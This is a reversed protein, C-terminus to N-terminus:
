DEQAQSPLICLKVVPRKLIGTATRVTVVRTVGDEGPHLEHIRGMKWQTPPQNPEVIVVLRGVQIDVAPQWHKSRAQLQSLYERRWRNWFDQLQRQVCQFRSLRNLQIDSLDPDPLAVLSGGVLFHAPTLPELDLPDDSLSTLPRSNLCAEVQTLLTVFDEQSIPNCGLVRLLHFKASRVAAEWLGGFHPASPPNFHWYIGDNACERSVQERHKEEKLLGFLEQMQNKAGVFNTGNDSYIDTCRGRRAFFRRLAQLFRETSLDSVLEMHVAKTAMCVFLAVYAKSPKRGRGVRLYVPGFYDVGSKSFPRSVTVRAAPLEGMQQRITTPKARFCKRCQHVIRKALNRGGLPWYRQRITGLLLQPGAHLYMEHYHRLILETLVHRAPLVIPHKAQQTEESHALRGGVRLIGKEDIRPNFWRLPSNRAVPTGDTLKSIEDPFSEAQVKRIIIQEAVQLEDTSLFGSRKETVPCRLNNLFRLWYATM